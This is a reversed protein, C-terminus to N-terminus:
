SSFKLAAVKLLGVVGETAALQFLLRLLFILLYKLNFPLITVEPTLVAASITSWADEL